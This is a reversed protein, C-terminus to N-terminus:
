RMLLLKRTISEGEATIRIFYMGGTQGELQIDYSASQVRDLEQRSIVQGLNNLLDIQAHTPALFQLQLRSQGTTPNPFLDISELASVEEVAVPLASFFGQCGLQDTVTVEYPVDPVEISSSNDGTSWDYQYPGKGDLPRIAAIVSGDVQEDFTVDLDLDDTCRPIQFNDLDTWYNGGAWTSLIRVQIIEGAYAALPLEITALDEATTPETEDLRLVSVFDSQCGVAIQVELIGAQRFALDLGTAFDVFRYDFRLTDTTEILGLYPTTVVLQPSQLRLNQSLVYSVNGHGNSVIANDSNVAWTNPLTGSEFDEAFPMEVTADIEFFLTDNSRNVDGPVNVWAFVRSTGLADVPINLNILDSQGAAISTNPFLQTSVPADNVQYSLSFSDIGQQGINSMLLELNTSNDATCAPDGMAYAANLMLDTAGSEFIQIDDIGAGELETAFDSFYVFRLRVDSAGALGTLTGYKREWDTIPNDGTYSLFAGNYDLTEVRTWNNGGDTSQELWLQDRGAETSLWAQFSIIPDTSLGSFDMCPSVLYSQESANSKGNLNTGWAKLGDGARDIVAGTPFGEEWSPNESDAGVIWGSFDSEFDEIYPLESITPISYIVTSTTDNDPDSDGGLETWVEIFYAGPSSFDSTADFEPYGLSDKGLVGTYVGDRPTSIEVPEGNVSYAFRILSQAAAGYNKLIVGVTDSGTLGCDSLPKIIDFAGVDNTYCTEFHFPGAALSTDGNACLSSLYFSYATKESLELPGSTGGQFYLSDGTGQLFGRNGIEIVYTDETSPALWNITATQDLINNVEISSVPPVPCSSCNISTTFAQGDFPAFGTEEFIVAEEETYLAFATQGDFDGSVYNVTLLDGSNLPLYYSTSDGDLLTYVDLDGNILVQLQAGNWGNGQADTLELRYICPSSQAHVVQPMLLIFSLLSFLLFKKM